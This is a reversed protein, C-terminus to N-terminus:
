RWSNADFLFFTAQSWEERFESWAEQLRRDLPRPDLPPRDPLWGADAAFPERATGRLATGVFRPRARTIRETAVYGAM